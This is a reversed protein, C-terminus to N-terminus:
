FSGDPASGLLLRDGWAPDTTATSVAPGTPAAAARGVRAARDRLLLRMAPRSAAEATALLLDRAEELAEPGAEGAASARVLATALGLVAQEHFAAPLRRTAVLPRLLAVADDLAGEQVLARALIYRAVDIIDEPEADPGAGPGAGLARAFALRAGDRRRGDTAFFALAARSVRAGSQLRVATDAFRRTAVIQRALDAVVVREDITSFLTQAERERGARWLEVGLALERVARESPSPALAVLRRLLTISGEVDGVARVDSLLAGLTGDADEGELAVAADMAGALDGTRALRRMREGVEVVEPECVQELISRRKFRAAAYAVADDPLPQDDLAREHAAILADVDASVASLEGAGRYLAEIAHPADDGAEAVIAEIFAGAAVYARGPEEGFFRAMSFLHTLSPSMGARRMAAAQERLTLGQDVALEPTLAMAMGETVAANHLVIFRSPVQLFTDSREGLVVHALEHGLTRHPVATSGIHLERRWPLAFDVHVAGTHRAMAERGQHAWIHIEDDHLPGLRQRLRELWLTGEALLADVERPSTTLPDAHVVLPGRRKVLSYREELAARGPILASRAQGHAVVFVLGVVVAAIWLGFTDGAAGSVLGRSKQAPWLAAGVLALVVALVLTAARFGIAATSLAAGALLDGSLVVFLHSATRFGPEQLLDFAITGAAIFEVGIVAAVALSRRGALRGLLPGLAAQVLLVPVSVILFPLWGANESCSPSVAAGIAVVVAFITLFLSAFLAGTRWDGMFGERERRAGRGAGLLAVVVGGVVALVMGSEPGPNSLLPVRGCIVAAVVVVVVGIISGPSPIM